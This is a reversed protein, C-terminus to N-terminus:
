SGVIFVMISKREEKRKAISGAAVTRESRM